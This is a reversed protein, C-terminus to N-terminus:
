SSIRKGIEMFVHAFLVHAGAGAGAGADNPPQPPRRYLLLPVGDVHM